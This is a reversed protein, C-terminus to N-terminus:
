LLLVCHSPDVEVQIKMKKYSRQLSLRASMENCIQETNQRQRNPYSIVVIFCKNLNISILM